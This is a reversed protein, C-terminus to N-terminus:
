LAARSRKRLALSPSSASRRADQCSARAGYLATRKTDPHLGAIPHRRPVRERSEVNPAEAGPPLLEGPLERLDLEVVQALSLLFAGVM